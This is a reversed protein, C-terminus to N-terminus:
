ISQVYIFVNWFAKLYINSNKVYKSKFNPTGDNSLSNEIVWRNRKYWM